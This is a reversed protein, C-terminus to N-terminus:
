IEVKSGLEVLRNAPIRFFDSQRGANQYMWAFLIERWIAMGPLETPVITDRSLFYSTNMKDIKMGFHSELLDLIQNADPTEKFGYIARVLYINPGLEKVTLRKEDAVYPVDWISIKLFFVRDHLVHNHKLNHLFSVPLYDVHATLFVATGEVRHPPNKLLSTIFTDLRIGDDLLRKRVIQRGQYWTMMLLFCISGIVLPFWGGELVKGLNAAFFGFDVILFIGIVLAIFIPNWKWVSKMVVAVLITTMLMTTSVAIGYAAALNDSKKFALVIAIVVFCLMWNIFPVYIQGKEKASTFLIKMRPLFGLLIAESTMSYAGSICAQSAIVTAITALIVLAFTYAEPVMLFFPNSITEPNTLLMAGQGLYNLLLCPMVLLFWALKIPRIGFHGMDAYLAEAGTLVLFISGTVAFAITADKSMFTIAYIPNLAELIQPADQIQYLGMLAIISFWVLMIPGFLAGVVSTGKKEIMFLCFLIAITIPIVYPTFDSSVVVTGEIASLVSIAPTIVADGYFLCAGLVGILILLFGKKTDTRATRLSLAMLSLIGGEGHNNARMVFWVYKLSVVVIFAWFVMSIVGFISEQTMPIGTTPDFCAKLAYLPSTGIDGFVVGIAGLALTALGSKKNVEAYEIAVPNLLDSESFEPKSVSM